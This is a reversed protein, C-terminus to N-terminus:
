TFIIGNFLYIRRLLVTVYEKSNLDPGGPKICQAVERKGAVPTEIKVNIRLIYKIYGIM